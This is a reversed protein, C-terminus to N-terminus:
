NTFKQTKECFTILQNLAVFLVRKLEDLVSFSNLTVESVYALIYLLFSLSCISCVVSRVKRLLIDSLYMISRM